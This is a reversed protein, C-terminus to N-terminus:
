FNRWFWDFIEDLGAPFGRFSKLPSTENVEGPKEEPILPEPGLSPSAPNYHSRLKIKRINEDYKCREQTNGVVSYAEQIERFRRSDGDYHDPHFEKALLRYASRIEDPTADSSVGLIAYYSKAM